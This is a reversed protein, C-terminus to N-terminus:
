SAAPSASASPADSPSASPAVSSAPATSASPAASASASAGASPAPSPECFKEPNTREGFAQDFAVVADRDLTEMPLVRGWVLAAYPWVMDDFPAIVPGNTGPQFGCVPSPPYGDFLERLAAQGPETAGEGDTRYLIVIGGHELNHIWGTPGVTDQPGYVRSTIPGAGSQNYHRGSAPPCYTYTVTTGTSVHENGMDPQVYGPQPSTNPGPSATPTPEWINSCAFTPTTAATFLGFGVLGVIAVVVVGVILSRYREFFSVKRVARARERRGVRATGTPSTSARPASGSTRVTQTAGATTGGASTGGATTGGASTGGATTGGAPVASSTQGTAPGDAPRGGSSRRANERARQRSEKSV